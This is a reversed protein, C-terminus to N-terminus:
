EVDQRKIESDVDAIGGQGPSDGCVQVAEEEGEGAAEEERQVRWEVMTNLPRLEKIEQYHRRSGQGPIGPVVRTRERHGRRHEGRGLIGKVM